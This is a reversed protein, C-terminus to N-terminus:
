AASKEDRIFCLSLHIVYSGVKVVQDYCYYVFQLNSIEPHAM